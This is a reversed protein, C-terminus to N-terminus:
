SAAGRWARAGSRRACGAAHADDRRAGGGVHAACGRSLACESLQASTHFSLTGSRRRKAQIMPKGAILALPKGPFRTSAYRAPIVGLVRSRRRRLPASWAVAGLTLLLAAAAAAASLLPLHRALARMPCAAAAAPASNCAPLALPPARQQRPRFPCEADNLAVLSGQLARASAGGRDGSRDRGRRMACGAAGGGDGDGSAPPM